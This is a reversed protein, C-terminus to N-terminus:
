YYRGLYKNEVIIKRIENPIIAEPRHYIIKGGPEVIITYPIGGFWEPDAADLLKYVDDERFIYNRNSAEHERLFELVETKKKYVDASITVLEFARGRYMRDTKIIEPFEIVCPGCWTAWINIMRLKNSNNKVLEKIGEADIDQLTVPLEAWEQYLQKTYEDKWSWKITCGFVKTVETEVKKGKLVADIAKRLDEGGDGSKLGEGPKEHGDVRGTYRLKRSKDFVFCHPTAVPGYALAAKQEDGDYLYPFTFSRDRARIKMDNYTDGLDTYGMEALSLAKPSNSSIVVLDVGRPTYEKSINKIREEYAQATPCHNCSFIVVLVDGKYESMTHIKGDIGKLSFDPASSGIPLTKPVPHESQSFAKFQPMLLFLFVILGFNRM